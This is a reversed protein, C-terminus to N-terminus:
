LRPFLFVPSSPLWRQSCVRGQINVTLSVPRRITSSTRTCTVYIAIAAEEPFPLLLFLGLGLMM